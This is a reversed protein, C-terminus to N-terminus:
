GKEMHDSNKKETNYINKRGLVSLVTQLLIKIDFLFSVHDVYYCDNNLKEEVSASNRFFAQNYGTIGPRVTLRKKKKTELEEYTKRVNNPRPGIFSMDGKLVNIIQPIEDISFERLIKGIRTVRFDDKGNYTSGDDNRLDPSNMYMSRLKYMKYVKGDKGRREAKYFIEGKDEFYIFPAVIIIILIVVPMCLVSIFIDLLRKIYKKYIM